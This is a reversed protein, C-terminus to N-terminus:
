FAPDVIEHRQFLFYVASAFFIGEILFYLLLPLLTSVIGGCFFERLLPVKQAFELVRCFWSRIVIVEIVDVLVEVVDFIEHFIVSIDFFM